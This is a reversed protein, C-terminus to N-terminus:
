YKEIFSWDKSVDFDYTHVWYWCVPNTGRYYRQPKCISHFNNKLRKEFQLTIFTQYNMYQKSEIEDGNRLKAILPFCRLLPATTDGIIGYEIIDTYIMVSHLRLIDVPFHSKHPGVGMLLVSMPFGLIQALDLSIINLKAQENPLIIDVKQDRKNVSWKFDVNKNTYKENAVAQMARLIEDLSHYLGPPIEMVDLRNDSSDIKYRFQGETIKHYVAPYSIEVLAVEWADDVTFQKPLFNSFSSLTNDPYIEMSANSVLEVIHFEM